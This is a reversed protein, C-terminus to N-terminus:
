GCITSADFSAGSKLAECMTLCKASGDCTAWGRLPMSEMPCNVSPPISWCFKKASADCGIALCRAGTVLCDADTACSKAPGHEGITPGDCSGQVGVTGQAAAWASSWYTIGDACGCVTGYDQGGTGPRQACTGKEGCAKADCYGNPGCETSGATCSINPM